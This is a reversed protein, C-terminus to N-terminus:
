QGMLTKFSGLASLWRGFLDNSTWRGWTQIPVHSLKKM